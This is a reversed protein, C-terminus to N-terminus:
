RRIIRVDRDRLQRVVREVDTLRLELARAIEATNTKTHGLRRLAQIHAYVASVLTDDPPPSEPGLTAEMSVTEPDASIWCYPEQNAETSSAESLDLVNNM